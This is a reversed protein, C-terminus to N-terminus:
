EVQFRIRNSNRGAVSVAVDVAGSPLAPVEVTVMTDTYSVVVGPVTGFTVSGIHMCALPDLDSGDARPQQCLYSGSMMVTIGPVGHDPQVGSISPAPVDDNASCASLALWAIWPLSRVFM